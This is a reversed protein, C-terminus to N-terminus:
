LYGRRNFKRILETVEAETKPSNRTIYDDLRREYSDNLSIFMKILKKFM